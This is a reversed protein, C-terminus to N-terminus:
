LAAQTKQYPNGTMVRNKQGKFFGTIAVFLSYPIALILVLIITFYFKNLMEYLKFDFTHM